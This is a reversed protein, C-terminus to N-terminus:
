KNNLADIMESFSSRTNTRKTGAAKVDSVGFTIPPLRLSQKDQLVGSTADKAGAKPKQYVTRARNRSRRRNRSLHM